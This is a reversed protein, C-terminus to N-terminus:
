AQAQSKIQDLADNFAQNTDSAGAVYSLHIHAINKGVVYSKYQSAFEEQYFVSERDNESNQVQSGTVVGGKLTLTVKISESGNPVYYDSGASYTGDKYGSASPGMSGNSMMRGSTSQAPTDATSGSTAIVVPKNVAAQQSTQNKHDYASVSGSIVVMALLTLVSAVAKQKTNNPKGPYM